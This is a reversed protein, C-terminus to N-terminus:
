LYTSGISLKMLSHFDLAVESLKSLEQQGKYLSSSLATASCPFFFQRSLPAVEIAVRLEQPIM